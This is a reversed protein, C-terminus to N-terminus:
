SIEVNRPRHYCAGVLVRAALRRSSRFFGPHENLFAYTEPWVVMLAEEVSRDMALTHRSSAAHVRYVFRACSDFRWLTNNKSAIAFLAFDDAGQAQLVPFGGANSLWEREFLFAGPSPFPNLGFRFLPRLSGFDARSALWRSFTHRMYEVELEGILLRPAASVIKVGGSTDGLLSAYFRPDILDDQDIFHIWEASAGQLGLNRTQAIGLNTDNRLIDVNVPGLRFRQTRAVLDDFTGPRASDDIIRVHASGVCDHRRAECVASVVSELTAVITAAGNFYPIVVDISRAPM